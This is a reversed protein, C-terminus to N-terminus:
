LRAPAPRNPQNAPPLVFLIRAVLAGDHRFTGIALIRYGPRLAGPGIRKGQRRIITQPTLVIHAIGTGNARRLFLQGSGAALLGGRVSHSAIFAPSLRPLRGPASRATAVPRPVRTPGAAPRPASTAFAPPTTPVGPASVVVPPTARYGATAGTLMVSRSGAAVGGAFLAVALLLATAKTGLLRSLM